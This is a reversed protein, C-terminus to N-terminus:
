DACVLRGNAWGRANICPRYPIAIGQELTIIGNPDDAKSDKVIGTTAAPSTTTSRQQRPIRGDNQASVISITALIATVSLTFVTAFHVCTRGTSDGASAIAVYM